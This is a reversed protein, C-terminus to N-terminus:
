KARIGEIMFSIVERVFEERNVPYSHFIDRTLHNMIMIGLMSRATVETNHNRLEGNAVRSDLCEKLLSAGERVLNSWTKKVVPNSDLERFFVRVLGAKSDLMKLFGMALDYFVDSLPRGRADTLIKRMQPLFSHYEVTAELLDEKSAFYHYMLGASIGAARAIDQVSTGYFGRAAFEALAVDLIQLRREEAQAKRMNQKQRQIKV